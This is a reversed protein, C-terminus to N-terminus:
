PMASSGLYSKVKRTLDVTDQANSQEQLQQLEARLKGNTKQLEHNQRTLTELAKAVAEATDWNVQSDGLRVGGCM